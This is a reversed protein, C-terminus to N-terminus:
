ATNYLEIITEDRRSRQQKAHDNRVRELDNLYDPTV